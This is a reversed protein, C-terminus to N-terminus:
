RHPKETTVLSTVVSVLGTHNLVEITPYTKHEATSSRGPIPGASKRESEYRLRIPKSTPEEVIIIEPEQKKKDNNELSQFFCFFIKM